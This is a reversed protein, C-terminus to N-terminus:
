ALGAGSRERDVLGKVFQFFDLSFTWVKSASLPNTEWVVPMGANAGAEELAKGHLDDSRNCAGTTLFIALPFPRSHSQPPETRFLPLIPVLSAVDAPNAIRLACLPSSSLAHLLPLWEPPSIHSFSIIKPIPSELLALPTNRLDSPRYYMLHLAHLRALLESPLKPFDKRNSRDVSFRSIALARLSPLSTPSLIRDYSAVTTTIGFLSLETLHPFHVPDDLRLILSALTLQRLHPVRYLFSSLVPDSLGQVTLRELKAFAAAAGFTARRYRIVHSLELIRTHAVLDSTAAAQLKNAGLNPFNCRVHRWLLPQVLARLNRSVLCGMRATEFWETRTSTSPILDFILLILEPPLHRPM